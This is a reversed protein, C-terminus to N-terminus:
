NLPLLELLVLYIWVFIGLHVVVGVNWYPKMVRPWINKTIHLMLQFNFIKVLGLAIIRFISFIDVHFYGSACSWMETLNSSELDILKQAILSVFLSCVSPCFDLHGGSYHPCLSFIYFSLMFLKFSYHFLHLFKLVQPSYKNFQMAITVRLRITIHPIM